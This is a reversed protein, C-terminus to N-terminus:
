LQVFRLCLGVLAPYTAICPGAKLTVLPGVGLSCLQQFLAEPNQKARERFDNLLSDIYALDNGQVIERYTPSVLFRFNGNDNKVM